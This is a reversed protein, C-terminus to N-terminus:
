DATIVKIKTASYDTITKEGPDYTVSPNTWRWIWRADEPAVNVCGNSEPEGYNNHWYTSHIAVGNGTFLNTWGVGGTDWGAQATGGEMHISVLKRWISHNGVPTSGAAVGSSIRCFYVERDDEYCSMHQRKYTIDVEIRKNEVEPTIPAVDEETLPRFARADGWFLDGRNGYKENIRYFLRGDPQTRMQDVWLVQSYYFRLPRGNEHRWKFEPHLPPNVALVDVYPVTVEVWMGPGISTSPIEAAPINPQNRVPQFYASWIYGRPTEVWRRNNRWPSYNGVVERLWPLVADDFVVDVTAADADPRAKLDWRGHCVRGLREGEPFDPLRFLGDWPRMALGSVGLAALKIFDRRSVAKKEMSWGINFWPLYLHYPDPLEGAPGM